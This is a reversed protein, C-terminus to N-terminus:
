GGVESSSHCGETLNSSTKAISYHMKFALTLENIELAKANPQHSAMPRLGGFHHEEALPIM